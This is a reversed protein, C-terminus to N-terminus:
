SAIENLVAKVSAFIARRNILGVPYPPLNREVIDWIQADTMITDKSRLTTQRVCCYVEKFFNDLPKNAIHTSGTSASQQKPKYRQKWM